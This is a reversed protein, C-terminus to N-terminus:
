TVMLVLQYGRQKSVVYNIGGHYSLGGDTDFMVYLGSQSQVEHFLCRQQHCIDLEQM